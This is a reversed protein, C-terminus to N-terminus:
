ATAPEEIFVTEIPLDIVDCLKKLGVARPNTVKGKLIEDVNSHTMDGARRALERLSLGTAAAATAIKDTDIRVTKQNNSEDSMLPRYIQCIRLYVFVFDHTLCFTRM